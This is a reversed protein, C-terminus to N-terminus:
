GDEANVCARGLHLARFDSNTSYSTSAIGVDATALGSTYFRTGHSYVKPTQAKNSQEPRGM